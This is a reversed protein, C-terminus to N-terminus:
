SMDAARIFDDPIPTTTPSNVEQERSSCSFLHLITILFIIKFVYKM